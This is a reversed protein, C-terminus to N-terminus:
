DELYEAKGDKSEETEYSLALLGFNKPEAAMKEGVVVSVAAERKTGLAERHALAMEIMRPNTFAEVAQAEVDWSEILGLTTASLVRGFELGIGSLKAQNGPTKTFEELAELFPLMGTSGVFSLKAFDFVVKKGKLHTRCAQRFPPASEIDIRGSFEVITVDGHNKLRAQLPNM